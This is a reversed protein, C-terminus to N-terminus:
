LLSLFELVSKKTIIETILIAIFGIMALRGNWNEAGKTFGWSWINYNNKKM